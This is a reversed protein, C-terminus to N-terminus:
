LSSTNSNCTLTPVGGPVQVHGHTLQLMRGRLEAGRRLPEAALLHPEPQVDLEPLLTYSRRGGTAASGHGHTQSVQDQLHDSAEDEAGDHLALAAVGRDLLVQLRQQRRGPDQGGALHAADEVAQRLDVLAVGHELDGQRGAHGLPVEALGDPVLAKVSM